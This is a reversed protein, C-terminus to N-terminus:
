EGVAHNCSGHERGATEVGAPGARGQTLSVRSGSVLQSVLFLTFRGLPDRRMCFDQGNVAGFGLALFATSELTALTPRGLLQTQRTHAEMRRCALVAPRSWHARWATKAGSSDSCKSERLIKCSNSRVRTVAASQKLPNVEEVGVNFFNRFEGKHVTGVKLSTRRGGVRWVIRTLAKIFQAARTSSAMGGESFYMPLLAKKSQVAKLLSALFRSPQGMCVNTLSEPSLVQVNPSYTTTNSKCPDCRILPAGTADFGPERSPSLPPRRTHRWSLSFGLFRRAALNGLSFGSQLFTHTWWAVHQDLIHFPASRPAGPRIICSM